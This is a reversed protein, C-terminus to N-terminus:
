APVITSRIMNLTPKYPSLSYAVIGAMLNVVFNLLSRHRTHEIQCLNKLQDFVTEILSRKRLVAKQFPSRQVPKMNKKLTTILEIDKQELMQTLWQAIYGKDAYLQGFIDHCMNPVPKRDDVNGSTMKLNIIEGRSNIIVHLKFGYFWGMSTKSMGSVEKFVRHRSIRKNDCVSLATADVISIGDCKGKITEFFVTLPVACRPMLEVMRSYSPLNPFESRLHRLVYGIYFMKFERFRLQHFLVVITMLESLSIKSRRHRTKIGENILQKEWQPEFYDCFDDLQCFIETLSEM